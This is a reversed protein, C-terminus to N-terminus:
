KVPAGARDTFAKWESDDGIDRAGTIFERVAEDLYDSLEKDAAHLKEM